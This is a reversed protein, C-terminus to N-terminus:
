IDRHKGKEYEEMLIIIEQARKKDEESNRLEARIREMILGNWYNWFLTSNYFKVTGESNILKEQIDENQQFRALNGEYMVQVKVEEWDSRLKVRNGEVWSKIGSKCLLIKEQEEKDFTKKFQFYQESCNFTVGDITFKSPYFNDCEDHEKEGIYAPGGM